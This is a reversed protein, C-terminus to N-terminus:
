HLDYRFESERIKAKRFMLEDGISILWVFPMRHGLMESEIQDVALWSM